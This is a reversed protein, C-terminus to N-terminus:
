VGLIIVGGAPTRRVGILRTAAAAARRMVDMRMLLSVHSSASATQTKDRHVFTHPPCDSAEFGNTRAAAPTEGLGPQPGSSGVRTLVRAYAM